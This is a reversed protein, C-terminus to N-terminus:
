ERGGDLPTKPRVSKPLQRHNLLATELETKEMFETLKQRLAESKTSKHLDNLVESSPAPLDALREACVREFFASCPLQHQDALQLFNVLVASPPHEKGQELKQLTEVTIELLGALQDQSLNLEDKIHRITEKLGRAVEAAKRTWLYEDFAREGLDGLQHAAEERSAFGREMLASAIEQILFTDLRDYFGTASPESRM